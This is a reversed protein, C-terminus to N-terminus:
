ASDFKLMHRESTGIMSWLLCTQNCVYFCGNSKLGTIKSSGHISCSWYIYSYNEVETLFHFHSSPYLSHLSPIETDSVNKVSREFMTLRFIINFMVAEGTM